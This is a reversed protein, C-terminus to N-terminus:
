IEGRLRAGVLNLASVSNFWNIQEEGLTHSVIVDQVSGDAHSVRIILNKEPTLNEVALIELSDNELFNEYDNTNVLCLPLIGQKKLNNEAIRAFSKAIVARCGMFRPEM